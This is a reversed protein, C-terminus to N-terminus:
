GRAHGAGAGGDGAGEDGRAGEGGRAGVERVVGGRMCCIDLPVPVVSEM